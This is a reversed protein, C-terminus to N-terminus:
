TYAFRHLKCSIWQKYVQVTCVTYAEWIFQMHIILYQKIDHKLTMELWDKMRFTIRIRVLSSGLCHPLIINYIQKKMGNWQTRFQESLSQQETYTRNKNTSVYLLLYFNLSNKNKLKLWVTLFAEYITLFTAIQM